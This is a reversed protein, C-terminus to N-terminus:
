GRQSPPRYSMQGIHKVVEDHILRVHRLSALVETDEGTDLVLDGYGFLRQILGQELEVREIQTFPIEMTRKRVIGDKRIIRNDTIVYQITRRRIEANLLEVLGAFALLWAVFTQPRVNLVPILVQPLFGWPNLYIVVAMIWLFIWILYHGLAILRTPRLSLLTTEPM